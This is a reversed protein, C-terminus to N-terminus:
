LEKDVGSNSIPRGEAEKLVLIMMFLGTQLLFVATNGQIFLYHSSSKCAAGKPFLCFAATNADWKTTGEWIIASVEKFCSSLGHAICARNIRSPSKKRHNVFLSLNEYRLIRHTNGERAGGGLGGLHLGKDPSLESLSPSHGGKM